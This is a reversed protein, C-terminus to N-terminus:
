KYYADRIMQQYDEPSKLPEGTPCDQMWDWALFLKSPDRNGEKKLRVIEWKPKLKLGLLRQLNTATVHWFRRLLAAEAHAAGAQDLTLERITHNSTVLVTTRSLGCSKYKQDVTFGAEDCLTKIFNIGLREVAEHDLDELMMHTHVKDDYLDFFRNSLNKKYANPYIFALLSTKGEGAYGHLWIHPNAPRDDNTKERKIRKQACMAKIKEGYQIYNRPFREFALEDQGEEILQRM